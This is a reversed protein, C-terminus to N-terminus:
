ASMKLCQALDPATLPQPHLYLVAWVRGMPRKFGWFHMLRGIAEAVALEPAATGELLADPAEPSSMPLKLVKQFKVRLGARRLRCSLKQPPCNGATKTTIIPSRRPVTVILPASRACTACRWGFGRGDASNPFSPVWPCVPSATSIPLADHLSLTHVTTYIETTATDNFFFLFSM